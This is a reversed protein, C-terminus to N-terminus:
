KKKKRKVVVARAMAVGARVWRELQRETGLGKQDVFVFGKLPKGTFDMSRVHPQKLADAHGEAGVRAMLEDKVVGCCMKGDLLFSLGGFMKTEALGREDALLNRVREALGEDYAM